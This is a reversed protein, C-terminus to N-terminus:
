LVSSLVGNPLPIQLIETFLLYSGVGFCVAVVLNLLWSRPAFFTALVFIALTMTAVFGLPELTLCLFLMAGLVVFVGPWDRIAMEEEEEAAAAAIIDVEQPPGSRGPRLQQWLLFLSAVLMLEGILLPFTRPGILINSGPPDPLKTAQWIYLLSFVPLVLAFALEAIAPWTRKSAPLRISM